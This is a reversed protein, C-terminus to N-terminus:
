TEDDAGEATEGHENQQENARQIAAAIGSSLKAAGLATIGDSLTIARMIQQADEVTLHLSIKMEAKRRM